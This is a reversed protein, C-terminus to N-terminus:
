NKGFHLRVSRRLIADYHNASHNSSILGVIKKERLLKVLLETLVFEGSFAGNDICLVFRGDVSGNADISWPFFESLKQLDM